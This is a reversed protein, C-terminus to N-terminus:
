KHPKLGKKEYEKPIPNKGVLWASVASPSVNLYKALAKQSKFFKNDYVISNRIAHKQPKLQLNCNESWLGQGILDEPPNVQGNFWQSVLSPNVKLYQALEAQSDFVMEGIGCKIKPSIQSLKVIEFGLDKYCLKKDYWYKPMGVKGNLWGNINGKPFNYFEKFETLSAFEKNDCIVPRSNCCKKGKKGLLRKRNTTLVKEGAIHGVSGEGGKTMNYGCCPMDHIFTHFKEILEIEKQKAEKETLNDFLINHQINDWGYKQIARYMASQHEETYGRGNEWRQNPQKSTIGIYRKGNPFLHEYVIWKKM